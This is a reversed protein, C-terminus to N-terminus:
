GSFFKKTKHWLSTFILYKMNTFAKIYLAKPDKSRLIRVLGDSIANILEAGRYIKLFATALDFKKNIVDVFEPNQMLHLYSELVAEITPSYDPELLIVEMGDLIHRISVSGKKEDTLIEVIQEMIETMMQSFSDDEMIIEISTLFVSMVNRVREQQLLEWIRLRGKLLLEDAM